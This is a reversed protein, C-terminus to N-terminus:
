RLRYLGAQPIRDDMEVGLLEKERCVENECIVAPVICNDMRYGHAKYESKGITEGFDCTGDDNM